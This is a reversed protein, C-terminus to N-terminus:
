VPTGATNSAVVAVPSGNYTCDSTSPPIPIASAPTAALGSLPAAGLGLVGAAACTRRQLSGHFRNRHPMSERGKDTHVRPIGHAGSVGIPQDPGYRGNNSVHLEQLAPM